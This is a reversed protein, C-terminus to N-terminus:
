DKYEETEVHGFYLLDYEKIDELNGRSEGPEVACFLTHSYRKHDDDTYYHWLPYEITGDMMFEFYYGYKNIQEKVRDSYRIQYISADADVLVKRGENRQDPDVAHGEKINREADVPLAYYADDLMKQLDAATGAQELIVDGPQLVFDYHSWMVDLGPVVEVYVNEIWHVGEDLSFYGDARAIPDRTANHYCFTDLDLDGEYSASAVAIQGGFKSFYPSAAAIFGTKAFAFIDGDFYNRFVMGKFSDMDCRNFTYESVVAEDGLEALAPAMIKERIATTIEDAQKDDAYYGGNEDWYVKTGDSMEFVYDDAFLMDWGFTGTNGVAYYDNIAAKEGYKNEFYAEANKMVEEHHKKDENNCGTLLLSLIGVTLVISVVIRNM